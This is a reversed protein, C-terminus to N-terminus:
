RAPEFSEPPRCEAGRAGLGGRNMPCLVQVDKIPDFGFRKPLRNKVIEVIKSVGDEPDRAEVFYFDSKDSRTVELNPMYGSNVKHANTVIQSEAAQRFIETLRAVPVAGSAIIDPLVQGPRPTGTRQYPM